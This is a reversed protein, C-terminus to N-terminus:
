AIFSRIDVAVSIFLHTGSLVTNQYDRFLLNPFIACWRFRCGFLRRHFARRVSNMCRVVNDICIHSYTVTGNTVFLSVLTWSMVNTSLKFIKANGENRYVWIRQFDPFIAVDVVSIGFRIEHMLRFIKTRMTRNMHHNSTTMTNGSCYQVNDCEMSTLAFHYRSEFIYVFLNRSHSRKPISQQQQQTHRCGARCKKKACTFTKEHRTTARGSLLFYKKSNKTM